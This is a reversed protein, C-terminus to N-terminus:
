KKMRELLEEIKRTREDIDMLMENRANAVKLQRHPYRLVQDLVFGLCFVGSFGCLVMIAILPATPVDLYGKLYLQINTSATICLLAFSIVPM